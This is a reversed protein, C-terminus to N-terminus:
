PPVVVEAPSWCYTSGSVPVVGAAEAGLEVGDEGAGAAEELLEEGPAVGVLEEGGEAEEDVSAGLLEDFGAAACPDPFASGKM